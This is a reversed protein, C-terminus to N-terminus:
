HSSQDIGKCCAILRKSALHNAHETLWAGLKQAPIALLITDADFVASLDSTVHINDPLTRGALRTSNKRTCAMADAASPDRAWLSVPGNAALAIALGTGFAGAGAVTIKM